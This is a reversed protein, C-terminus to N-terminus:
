AVPKPKEIALREETFQKIFASMEIPMKYLISRGIKRHRMLLKRGKMASLRHLRNGVYEVQESRPLQNFPKKKKGIALYKDALESSEYRLHDLVKGAYIEDCRSAAYLILLNQVSLRDLSSRVDLPIELAGVLEKLKLRKKYEEIRRCQELLEKAEVDTLISLQEGIGLRDAYEQFISRRSEDSVIIMRSAREKLLHLKLVAEEVSGEIRILVPVISGGRGWVLDITKGKALSSDTYDEVPLEGESGSVDFGFSRGIEVMVEILGRKVTREGKQNM